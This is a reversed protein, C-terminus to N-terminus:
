KRQCIFYYRRIYEYEHLINNNRIWKLVTKQPIVAYILLLFIILFYVFISKEHHSFLCVTEGLTSTLRSKSNVSPKLFLNFLNGPIRVSIKDFM